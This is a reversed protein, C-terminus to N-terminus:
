QEKFVKDHHSPTRNKISTRYNSGSPSFDRYTRNLVGNHEKMLTHKM